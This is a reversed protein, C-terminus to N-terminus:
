TALVLLSHGGLVRVALDPQMAYLLGRPLRAARAKWHRAPLEQHSTYRHAVIEYGTHVLSALATDRTFYHLHGVLDRASRLPTGRLVTQVSLDLPIHLVKHGAIGHLQRLFGLYDEVHEFVDVALAVDYPEADGSGDFPSGLRFDLRDDAKTKCLDFAQPSIEFGTFTAPPGYARALNVLIDGAGCGVECWRRPAIGSDALLSAIHRAKWPSEAAHWGPNLREYEGDRYMSGENACATTTAGKM